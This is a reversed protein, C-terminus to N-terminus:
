SSTYGMKRSVVMAAARVAEILRWVVPPDFRSKPGSVSISAVVTGTADWIPAGVCCLDDEFEEMDLAYGRERVAALEQHLREVETITNQTCRTLGREEVM